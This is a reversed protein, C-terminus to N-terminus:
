SGPLGGLLGGLGGLGGLGSLGASPDFDGLAQQQLQSAQEIADRVAALVLDQLMDVDDPDVVSRDIVVSEVDLGGTLKVRVMGGGASGEVVQAAASEQAEALGQQVQGIQSLLAGLDLGPPVVQDDHAEGEPVPELDESTV